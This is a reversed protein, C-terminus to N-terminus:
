LFNKYFFFFFCNINHIGKENRMLTTDFIKKFPNNVIARVANTLM